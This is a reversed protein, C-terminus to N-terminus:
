EKHATLSAIFDRGKTIVERVPGQLSDTPYFTPGLAHRLPCAKGMMMLM